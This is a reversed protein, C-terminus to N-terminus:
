KLEDMFSGSEEVYEILSFFNMIVDDNSVAFLRVEEGLKIRLKTYIEPIFAQSAILIPMTDLCLDDVACVRFGHFVRGVKNTDSDYIAAIDLKSMATNDKLMEGLLIDALNGAGYLRVAGCYHSVQRSGLDILTHGSASPYKGIISPTGSHTPFGSFHKSLWSVEDSVKTATLVSDQLVRKLVEVGRKHWWYDALKAVPDPLVALQTLRYFYRLALQFYYLHLGQARAYSDAAFLLAVPAAVNKQWQAVWSMNAPRQSLLQLTMFERLSITRGSDLPFICWDPQSRQETISELCKVLYKVSSGPHYIGAQRCLEQRKEVGVIRQEERDLVDKLKGIFESQSAPIFMPDVVEVLQGDPHCLLVPRGTALGFLHLSYPRHCVMVRASAYDDVYSDADSFLFNSYRKGMECCQQVIPHQRDSHHPRFVVRYEPFSDLLSKLTPLILGEVWSAEISIYSIHYIISADGNTSTVADLFLDLKVAGFPIKVVTNEKHSRVQPPFIDMYRDHDLGQEERAGLVYDFSYGGGYTIVTQDLPIDIGHPLGIKTVSAPFDAYSDCNSETMFIFDYVDLDADGSHYRKLDNCDFNKEYWARNEDFDSNNCLLVCSFQGYEKLSSFLAVLHNIAANRSICFGLKTNRVNAMM